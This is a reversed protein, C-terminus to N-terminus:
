SNNDYSGRKKKALQEKFADIYERDLGKTLILIIAYVVMGALVSLWTGANSDVLSHVALVAVSMGATSFVPSVFMDKFSLTVGSYRIVLLTNIIATILFCIFTGWAAGKINLAEMRILWMGMFLKVISGLLMSLVPYVTRGSGQLIGTTIQSVSMLFVSPALIRLLSGAIGIDQPSLGSFMAALLPEALLFLGVSCPLGLIIGTKYAMDAHRAASKLRKCALEASLAPVIAMSIAAFLVTPMNVIPQVFGSLLGFLSSADTQSYGESTLVRMVVSSDIASVIAAACAGLTVPFALRWLLGLIRKVRARDATWPFSFEKRKAAYYGMIVALGALESLTVGLLAGGSGYEAGMPMWMRAIYLGLTLRVLQEAVQSVATAGMLQRGQLYGRYASVMAVFVLSPSLMRLSLAASKLGMAAAIPTAAAYLLIFSLVGVALLAALTVRFIENAGRFNGRACEESVMKSVAIPVGASSIVLLLSYVPYAMQYNGMGETGITNGLPVRYIAGLVKCILGSLALVAAGKVFTKKNM